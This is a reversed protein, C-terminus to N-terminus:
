QRECMKNDEDIQRERVLDRGATREREAQKTGDAHESGRGRNKDCDHRRNVRDHRGVATCRPDAICPM